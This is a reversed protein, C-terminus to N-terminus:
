GDTPNKPPVVADSINSKKDIVERFKKKAVSMLTLTVYSGTVGVFFFLLKIKNMLWENDIVFEDALYVLAFSLVGDVILAVRDDSLFQGFTYKENAKKYDIYLANYKIAIHVLNGILCAFVCKFYIEANM